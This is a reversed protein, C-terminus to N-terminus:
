EENKWEEEAILGLGQLTLQMEIKHIFPCDPAFLHAYGGTAIVHFQRGQEVSLRRLLGELMSVYGWYLGQNIAEVTSTGLIKEPQALDVLPLKATAKHLTQRALDVGPLILGGAYAGENDVLDLTTATGFDVVIQNCGYLRRAALANVLRDAGVEKPNPLKVQMGGCNEHDVTLVPIKLLALFLRTIDPVVSAMVTGRLTNIAIRQRSLDQALDFDDALLRRNRITFSQQLHGDSFLALKAQTNGCDILLFSM